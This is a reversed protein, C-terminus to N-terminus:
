FTFVLDSLSLSMFVDKELYGLASSSLGGAGLEIAL